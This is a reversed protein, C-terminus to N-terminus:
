VAPWAPDGGAVRAVHDVHIHLFDAPDGVAAAPANM